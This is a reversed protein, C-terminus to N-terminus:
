SKCISEERSSSTAERASEVVIAALREPDEEHVLHGGAPLVIVRAHRLRAAAVRADAPPVSGDLAATVLVVPVDLRQMRNQLERLDWNAMMGLTGAVHGSNSFLRQYLELGRQDIVSGTGELLRRV